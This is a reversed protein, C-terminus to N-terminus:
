GELAAIASTYASYAVTSGVVNTGTVKLRIKKGEDGAQLTYTAATAGNIAADNSGDSDARHWQYALTPSQRWTGDHGTLVQGVTTTGTITPAVTNEPDSDNPWSPATGGDPAFGAEVLAAQRAQENAAIDAHYAQELAVKDDIYDAEIGDRLASYQNEIPGRVDNPHVDTM